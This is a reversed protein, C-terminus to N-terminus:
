LEDGFYLRWSERGELGGVPQTRSLDLASLVALALLLASVTLHGAFTVTSASGTQYIALWVLSGMGVMLTMVLTLIQTCIWLSSGASAYVLRVVFLAAVILLCTGTGWDVNSLQYTYQTDSLAPLTTTFSYVIISAALVVGFWVMLLLSVTCHSTCKM